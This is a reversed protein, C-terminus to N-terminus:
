QGLTDRYREAYRGDPFRALYRRMTQEAAATNHLGRYATVLQNFEVETAARGRLADVVCQFNNALLCQAASQGSSSGSSTPNTPQTPGPTPRQTPGTGVVNPNPTSPPTSNSTGSNNSSSRVRRTGTESGSRTPQVPETGQAGTNQPPNEPETGGTQPAVNAATGNNAPPDQTSPQQTGPTPAQPNAPPQTEAGTPTPTAAQQGTTSGNNASPPAAVTGAGNNAPETGTVVTTNQSTNPTTNSKNMFMVGGGGLAAVLVGVGVLLGVSSKKPEAVPEAAAPVAASPAPILATADGVRSLKCEVVGMTIQDGASISKKKVREGNVVVGNSSGLDEIVLQDNEVVIKAHERSISSFPLSVDAIESRGLLVPVKTIVFTSPTGAPALFVLQLRKLHDPVATQTPPPVGLATPIAPMTAQPHHGPQQAPAEYTEVQSAAAPAASAAPAVQAGNEEVINLKYDGIVIQDGMKLARQDSLRTGNIVTGNYSGLDQLVYGGNQKQLKAHRRSVNRDTLRITNGEKRGITIEDRVLPVTTTKGEDDSIVLKFM